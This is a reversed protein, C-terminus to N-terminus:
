AEVPTVVVGQAAGEVVIKKEVDPDEREGELIRASYRVNEIEMRRVEALAKKVDVARHMLKFDELIPHAGPLAEIYLSGSPVTIEDEARRPASLLRRLQDALLADAEELAEGSIGQEVMQAHLARAYAAFEEPTFNGFEDPDRLGLVTDVYPTMMFNTLANSERLPFILYNGKFGLLDDLDAVEALTAFDKNSDLGSELNIAATVEVVVQGAKVPVSAPVLAPTALKYKKEHPRLRPVKKKHLSLFLQDGFTHSWVAQMYYLINEKIHLRLSGIDMLCNYHEAQARALADSAAKLAAAESDLQSRLEKERALARDLRERAGDELVRAADLSMPDVDNDDTLTDWAQQLWGGAEADASQAKQEIQAMLLDTYMNAKNRAATYSRKLEDVVGRMAIVNQGMTKLAIEDGVLKTRIYELPKRFQDDLLVRDIIWGHTLLLADIDRRSPNPVDMAVLVVPRLRHITESIKYRRQLEYFLYTVPLEDNPNSIEASETVEEESSERTEVDLKREDKYEQAAKIVSERFSRKTDSSSAAADKGFVVTSDGGAIGINFSGKNTLSFNTKSEARAVIEAEDRSTVNSEEKRVRLSDEVEKVSREKKVVRKVSVKRTEKPTLTVTKVLDGVQYSIPAWRQRYSVLLGFNVSGAAFSEFAYREGLMIELQTLLEHPGNLTAETASAPGGGGITIHDDTTIVNVRKALATTDGGGNKNTQLMLPTTTSAAHASQVTRLESRLARVPDGTGQLARLPDGGLDLLQQGLAKGQEIVGEDIAKQWVYDLAIQLSHFDYFAPVDAPGSHLQFRGVGDEVSGTTPRPKVGSAVAEEPSAMAGILRGVFDPIEEPSVPAGGELAAAGGAAPATSLALTVGGASNPGTGNGGGPAPPPAAPPTERVLFTPRERDTAGGFLFPEIEEATVDRFKNGEMFGEAQEKSLVIYAKAPPTTNIREGITKNAATFMAAEVDGGPPVYNFRDALRAPVGTLKELLKTEVAQEVEAVRAREAAVQQAAIKQVENRITVQRTVALKLKQKVAEPEEVEFTVGTPATIGIEALKANPIRIVYTETVGANQRIDKSVHLVKADGPTGMEEPGRIVLMLDPRKEDQKRHRFDADEYELRFLGARDTLVSGLSDAGNIVGVGDMVEEPNTGPDVDYIIVLLDPIGIGTEKLLVKGSIQNM